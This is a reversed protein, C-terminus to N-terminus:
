LKQLLVIGNLFTKAWVLPMARAAPILLATQISRQIFLLSGSRCLHEVIALFLTQNCHYAAAGRLAAGTPRYAQHRLFGDFAFQNRAYSPFGNPNEQQAV